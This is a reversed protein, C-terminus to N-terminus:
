EICRGDVTSVNRGSSPEDGSTFTCIATGSTLCTSLGRRSSPSHLDKRCSSIVCLPGIRVSPSGLRGTVQQLKAPICFLRAACGRSLSSHM